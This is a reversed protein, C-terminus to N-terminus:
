PKAKLPVLSQDKPSLCVSYTGTSPLPLEAAAPGFTIARIASPLQNPKFANLAGGAESCRKAKDTTQVAEIKTQKLCHELRGLVEKEAAGEVGPLFAAELIATADPDEASANYHSEGRNERLAYIRKSRLAPDLEAQIFYFNSAGAEDGKERRIERLWETNQIQLVKDATNTFEYNAILFPYREDTFLTEGVGHDPRCDASAVVAIGSMLGIAAWTLRKGNLKM